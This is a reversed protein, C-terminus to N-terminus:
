NKYNIISKNIEVAADINHPKNLEEKHECHYLRIHGLFKSIDKIDIGHLNKGYSMSYICYLRINCEELSLGTVDGLLFEFANAIYLSDQSKPEAMGFAYNCRRRWKRILKLDSDTLM